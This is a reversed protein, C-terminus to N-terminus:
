KRRQRRAAPKAAARALIKAELSDLDTERVPTREAWAIARDLKRAVSPEHLWLENDPIAHAAKVIWVGAEIEEVAVTRGAHQKGLPIEGRAGVTKLEVPM